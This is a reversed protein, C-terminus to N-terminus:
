QTPCGRKQDAERPTTKRERALRGGRSEFNDFLEIYTNIRERKQRPPQETDEALKKHSKTPTSSEQDSVDGGLPFLFLRM